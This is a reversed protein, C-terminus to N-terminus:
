SRPDLPLPHPAPADDRSEREGSGVGREGFNECGAIVGLLVTDMFRDIRTHLARTEHLDAPHAIGPLPLSALSFAGRFFLFAQVTDHISIHARQAEQGYSVGVSRAEQLFREDDRHNNIYQILLGLLRQGLCRMLPASSQSVLRTHWEQRSLEQEDVGWESIALPPPRLAPEAAHNTLQAITTRSFRRHGGLTRNSPVRGSDSWRRLTSAAIGLLTSAEHLSLWENPSEEQHAAIKRM